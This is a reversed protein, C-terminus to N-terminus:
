RRELTLVVDVRYLQDIDEGSDVVEDSGRWEISLFETALLFREQTPRRDHIFFLAEVHFDLCRVDDTVVQLPFGQGLYTPKL